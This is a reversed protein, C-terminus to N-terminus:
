QFLKPVEGSPTKRQEPEEVIVWDATASPQAQKQHVLKWYGIGLGLYMVAIWVPSVAPVVITALPLSSLTEAIVIIYSLSCQTVYGVVVGFPAFIFYSVASVFAGLMAIPVMPLVLVNTLVAILSVEGIHYILLPLVALQTAITAVIYGRVSTVVEPQESKELFPVALIIGVTAMFSLQFGIDFLLLYPNVLLMVFGALLLARLVDYSRKLTQALLLLSAMISARVVTASFGVLSAFAVIASLGFILRLRSPLVFSLLYMVFTVVLMINYGSLVVIHIIGSRRFDEELADGLGQNVGLLLGDALSGGPEVLVADLASMFSSKLWLLSRLVPHGGGTEVVDVSAFSIRYEVGQARLYGAYDFTRGLETTFSTPVELKGSVEVTDGYSIPITRDTSVLIIKNQYEVKLLQTATRRDPERVVEGTFTITQNVSQHLSADFQQEYIHTRTAGLALFIVFLSVLLLRSAELAESRFRRTWGIALALLLLWIVVYESLTFITELAIGTCFGLLVSLLVLFSM